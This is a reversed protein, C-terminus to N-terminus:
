AIVGRYNYEGYYSNEATERAAIADAEIKFSGLHINRHNVTIYAQWCRNNIHWSVGKKTSTIGGATRKRSNWSNQSISVIRLNHKQNNLGDGDIHDVVLKGAPRMITRHMALYEKTGDERRSWRVAYFYGDTPEGAHWKFVALADFDDDDVVAVLGRSLAIQKM